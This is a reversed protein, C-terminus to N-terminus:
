VFAGLGTIARGVILTNIERTGEYSYIAESDAVFRGVHNEKSTEFGPTGREVVFGKVQGDELSRARIIVYDAFTANGIWKKQGDLVWETGDRRATTTLGGAVGSGSTPM